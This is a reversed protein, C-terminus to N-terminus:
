RGEIRLQQWVSVAKQGNRDREAGNWVAFAVPVPTGAAVQRDRGIQMM